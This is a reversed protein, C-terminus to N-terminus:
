SSCEYKSRSQTIKWPWRGAAQEFEGDVVNQNRKTLDAIVYKRTEAREKDDLHVVATNFYSASCM